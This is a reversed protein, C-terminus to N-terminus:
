LAAKALEILGVTSGDHSFSVNSDTLEQHINNALTKGLEVGWQDFSNINWIVGQVFVKHEYLAMLAGLTEPRLENMIIMNSPRNGEFRKQKVLMEIEEEPLERTELEARIKDPSAGFALAEAQAFCNALVMAHHKKFPHSPKLVAIFDVPCVDTGQHFLQFYSHQGNTGTNGLVIPCTDYVVPEGNKQVSKGNSEMELQQLWRSFVSLDEHYPACALTHYGLFNRNWIGILALLVPMNRDLPANKFHVDMAHAGSLFEMFHDVGVAMMVPLGIASWVSYRGGVWDWIPYINESPIGFKEAGETNATVAVFHKSLNSIGAGSALFWARVTQANLLTEKTTFSKSSVIVLATEPNIKQLVSELEHGDVNSVFHVHLNKSVFHRLSRVAMRPGFDSGGIGINVIDTIKKGTFGHWIGAYVSETLIKMRKLVTQISSVINVNDICVTDSFSTRLATHLVSRHETVNIKNGSFMADRAYLLKSERALQILQRVIEKTIRNKSFDLILGGASVLMSPFRFCDTEFIAKLSTNKLTLAQKQLVLWHIKNQM